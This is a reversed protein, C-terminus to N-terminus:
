LNRENVPRRDDFLALKSNKSKKDIILGNEVYWQYTQQLANIVQTPQYNLERCARESSYYLNLAGLRARSRTIAGPARRTVASVCEACAGLLYLIGTPLIKSPPTAGVILATLRMLELHSLNEGGLIYRRGPEGKEAASLHGKAVDEASVVNLGGSPVGPVIGKQLARMLSLTSRQPALPGILGTPNVTIAPLGKDVLSLVLKEATYKAAMYAIDFAGFNYHTLEDAMQHPEYGIAAASSTYVFRSIRANLAERAVIDTGVVHVNNLRQRDANWYSVFGAAHYVECCGEMAKRVSVKDTVDGVVDEFSVGLNKPMPNRELHYARVCRGSQALVRTLHVGLLGSSGTVLVRM